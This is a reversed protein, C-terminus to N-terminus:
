KLIFLFNFIFKFLYFSFILLFRNIISFPLFLFLLWILYINLPLLTPIGNTKIEPYSNNPHLPYIKSNQFISKIDEIDKNTDNTHIFEIDSICIKHNIFDIGCVVIPINLGKSIYYFGSKWKIAKKLKGEPSLLLSKNKNIKLYNIISNVTGSNKEIPFGGFSSLLFGIIPIDMYKKAVGFCYNNNKLCLSIIFGIVSEWKSTHPFILVRQKDANIIREDCSYGILFMLIKGIIM